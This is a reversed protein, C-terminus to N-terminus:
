LRTDVGAGRVFPSLLLHKITQQCASGCRRALDSLGMQV